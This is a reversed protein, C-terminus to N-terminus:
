PSFLNAEYLFNAAATTNFSICDPRFKATTRRKGPEPRGRHEDRERRCDITMGNTFRSVHDSIGLRRMTARVTELTRHSIGHQEAVPALTAFVQGTVRKNESFIALFLPQHTKNGPFLVSTLGDSGEM